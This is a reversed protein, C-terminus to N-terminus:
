NKGQEVDVGIGKLLMSANFIKCEGIKLKYDFLMEDNIVQIDFHYNKVVKPYEDALTSLQLDHTAVMGKGKESILKKIIARSGLYKDVSNTGRLMEDILFFSDTRVAVTELIFKMRDLEAKFTSTSENLNDKIRMYSILHYIPIRFSRAPVVAGAYALVANIGITRLFTSKGAMNSGTVLAIQHDENTYTNAIAKETSIMPHSMDVAEITDDLQELIITTTWDPHNRKWTGLSVLAEMESLTDFSDLINAQYKSRWDVIALVQKFDWLLFINLITGVMMNNRADLNGILRGLKKFASSVSDTADQIKLRNQLQINREAKWTRNEVLEMSSAYAGLLHGVKDIRSSFFSVKGGNAMTWLLHILGIVVPLFTFFPIFIAFVISGIFLFPALKVYIRMFASGFSFDGSEFYTSLFSKVDLKQNLNSLLKAQFDQSWHVDEAIESSAEQRRLIDSRDSNTLLWSGLVSISLKTASRNLLQFLSHNGVIDLDSSYPHKSDELDTGNDYINVGNNKITIENVNVALLAQQYDRGKELKSQRNVLFAFLFILAFFLVLVLMLSELQFSYFLAAGGLIIVALRYFSNQNITRNLKKVQQEIEEKNKHYFDMIQDRM